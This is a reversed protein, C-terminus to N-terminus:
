LAMSMTAHLSTPVEQLQGAERKAAGQMCLSNSGSRVNAPHQPGNQSSPESTATDTRHCAEKQPAVGQM